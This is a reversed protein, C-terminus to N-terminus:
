NGCNQSNEEKGGSSEDSLDKINGNRGVSQRPHPASEVFSERGREKSGGPSSGADAKLVVTGDITKNLRDLSKLNNRLIRRAEIVLELAVAM